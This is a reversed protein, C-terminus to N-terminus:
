KGSLRRTVAGSRVEELMLTPGWKKIKCIFRVSEELAVDCAPAANFMRQWMELFLMREADDGPPANHYVVDGHADLVVEPPEITGLLTRVPQPLDRLQKQCEYQVLAAGHNEAPIQYAAKWFETVVVHYTFRQRKRPKPM